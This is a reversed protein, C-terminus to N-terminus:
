KNFKEKMKLFRPDEPGYLWLYYFYDYDVNLIDEALAIFVKERITSDNVNLIEYVDEGNLMKTHVDKFTLDEPMDYIFDEEEPYNRLLWQKVSQDLKAPGEIEELKEKSEECVESTESLEEKKLVTNLLDSNLQSYVSDTTNGIALGPIIELVINAAITENDEGDAPDTDIIFINTFINLHDIVYNYFDIVAYDNEYSIVKCGRAITNLCKDYPDASEPDYDFYVIMDITNDGVDLGYLGKEYRDEIIDALTDLKKSNSSEQEKLYSEYIDTDDSDEYLESDPDFKLHNLYDYAKKVSFKENKNLYNELIVVFSDEDFYGFEYLEKADNLLSNEQENTLEIDDEKFISQILKVNDETQEIDDLIYNMLSSKDKIGEKLYYMYLHRIRKEIDSM